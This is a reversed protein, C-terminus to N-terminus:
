RPLRYFGNNNRTARQASYSDYSPLDSSSIFSPYLSSAPEVFSELPLHSAPPARHEDHQHQPSSSCSSSSSSSLSPISLPDSAM